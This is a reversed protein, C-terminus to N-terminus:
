SNVPFTFIFIATSVPASNLSQDKYEKQNKSNPEVGIVPIKVVMETYSCNCVLTLLLLHTLM